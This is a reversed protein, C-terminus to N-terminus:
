KTQKTDNFMDDDLTANFYTISIHSHTLGASRSFLFGVRLVYKFFINVVRLLLWLLCWLVCMNTLIISYLDLYLSNIISHAHKMYFYVGNVCMMFKTMFVLVFFVTFCNRKKNKIYIICAWLDIDHLVTKYMATCTNTPKKRISFKDNWRAM